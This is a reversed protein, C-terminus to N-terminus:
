GANAGDSAALQATTAPSNEVGLLHCLAHEFPTHEPARYNTCAAETSTRLDPSQALEIRQISEPKSMEIDNMLVVVANRLAVANASDLSLPKWAGQRLAFDNTVTKRLFHPKFGDFPASLKTAPSFAICSAQGLGYPKVVALIGREEDIPIIVLQPERAVPKLTLTLEKDSDPAFM